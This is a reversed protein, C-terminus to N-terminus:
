ASVDVHEGKGAEQIQAATEIAAEMLSQVVQDQGNALKLLRAAIATAVQSGTYSTIAEIGDM